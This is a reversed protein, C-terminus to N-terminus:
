FVLMTEVGIQWLNVSNGSIDIEGRSSDFLTRFTVSEFVIGIGFWSKALYSVRLRGGIPSGFELESGSQTVNSLSYSGFYQVDAKLTFSGLFLGITPSLFNYRTGRSNGVSLVVDSHQNIIRADHSIGLAVSNNIDWLVTTGVTWTFLLPAEDTGSVSRSAYGWSGILDVYLNPVNFASHGAHAEASISLSLLFLVRKIM